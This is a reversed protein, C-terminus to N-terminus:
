RITMGCFTVMALQQLNTLHIPVEGGLESGEVWKLWQGWAVYEVWEIEERWEVEEVWEGSQGSGVRGM